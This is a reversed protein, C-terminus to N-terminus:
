QDDPWGDPYERRQWKKRLWRGLGLFPIFLFFVFLTGPFLWYWVLAIVATLGVAVALDFILEGVKM